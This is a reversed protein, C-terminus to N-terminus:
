LMKFEGKDTTHVEDKDRCIYIFTLDSDTDNGSQVVKM